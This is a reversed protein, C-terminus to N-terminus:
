SNNLSTVTQMVAALSPISTRRLVRRIAAYEPVARAVQAWFRPSHNFEALHSLEHAILYDQARPPLLVIRWNFNLNGQRSCSAWRTKQNRISIRGIREPPYGYVAANLQAIKEEVLARARPKNALYDRRTLRRRVPPPSIFNFFPM